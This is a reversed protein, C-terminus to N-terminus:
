EAAQFLDLNQLPDQSCVPVTIESAGDTEYGIAPIMGYLRFFSAGHRLVPCSDSFQGRM